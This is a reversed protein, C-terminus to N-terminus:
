SILCLLQRPFCERKLLSCASSTCVGPLKPSQLLKDKRAPPTWSSPLPRPPCGGMHKPLHALGPCQEEWHRHPGAHGSGPSSWREGHGLWWGGRGLFRDCGGARRVGRRDGGASVHEWKASLAANQTPLSSGEVGRSADTLPELHGSWSSWGRAGQTQGQARELGVGGREARWCQDASPVRGAGHGWFAPTVGGM